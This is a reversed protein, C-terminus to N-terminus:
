TYHLQDAPVPTTYFYPAEIEHPQHTLPSRPAIPVYHSVAAEATEVDRDKREMEALIVPHWARDREDASVHHLRAWRRLRLEEVLDISNSNGVSM